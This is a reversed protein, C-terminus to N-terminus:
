GKIKVPPLRNERIPWETLMATHPFIWEGRDIVNLKRHRWSFFFLHAREVPSQQSHRLHRLRRLKGPAASAPKRTAPDFEMESHFVVETGRLLCMRAEAAAIILSEHFPESVRSGLYVLRVIDRTHFPAV